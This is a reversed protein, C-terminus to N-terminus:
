RASVARVRESRQDGNARESDIRVTGVWCRTPSSRLRRHCCSGLTIADTCGARQLARPALRSIRTMHHFRSDAADAVDNRSEGRADVGGFGVSLEAVGPSARTQGGRLRACTPITEWPTIRRPVYGSAASVLLGGLESMVGREDHGPAAVARSAM